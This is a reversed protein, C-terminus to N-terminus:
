RSARNAQDRLGLAKATEQDPVARGNIKNVVSFGGQYDWMTWGIHYKELVTRMDHLWAARSEPPSVKRFVMIQDADNFVRIRCHQKRYVIECGALSIRPRFSFFRLQLRM